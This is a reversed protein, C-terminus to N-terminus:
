LEQNKAYGAQSDEPEITKGAWRNLLWILPFQILMLVVVLVVGVLALSFGWILLAPPLFLLTHLEEELGLLAMLGMLLSLFSFLILLTKLRFRFRPPASPNSRLLDDSM